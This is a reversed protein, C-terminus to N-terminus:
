EVLENLSNISELLLEQGESKFKGNAQKQLVIVSYGGLGQRPCDTLDLIDLSVSCDGKGDANDRMNVTLIRADGVPEPVLITWDKATEKPAVAVAEFTRGALNVHMDIASDADDPFTVRAGAM